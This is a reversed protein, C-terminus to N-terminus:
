KLKQISIMHEYNDQTIKSHNTPDTFYEEIALNVGPCAHWNYDDFIMHGGVNLRPWFIEIAAKTSQYLDLDLHVLCFNETTLFDASSPLWGKHFSCNTKDSLYNKVRDLDTDNFHGKFHGGTKIADDELMGEFSDFLLVQKNKFITALLRASGGKYVGCEVVDGPINNNLTETSIKELFEIKNGLLSNCSKTAFAETKYSM